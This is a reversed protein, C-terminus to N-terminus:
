HWSFFGTPLTYCIYNWENCASDYYYLHMKFATTANLVDANLAVYKPDSM